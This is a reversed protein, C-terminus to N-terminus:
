VSVLLYFESLWCLLHLRPVRTRQIGQDGWHLLCIIVAKRTQTIVRLRYHVFAISLCHNSGRYNLSLYIVVYVYVNCVGRCADNSTLVKFSVKDARDCIEDWLVTDVKEVWSLPIDGGKTTAGFMAGIVMGRSCNDGGALANLTVAEVLTNAKRAIYLSGILAGTCFSLFSHNFDAQSMVHIVCSAGCTPSM